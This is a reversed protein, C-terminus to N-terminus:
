DIFGIIKIKLRHVLLIKQKGKEDLVPKGSEDELYVVQKGNIYHDANKTRGRNGASTQVKYGPCKAVM